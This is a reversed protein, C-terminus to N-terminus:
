SQGADKLVTESCVASVWWEGTNAEQTQLAICLRNRGRKGWGWSFPLDRGKIGSYHGRRELWGLQYLNDLTRMAGM